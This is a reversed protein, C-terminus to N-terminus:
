KIIFTLETLDSTLKAGEEFENVKVIIMNSQDNYLSTMINNKVTLIKPKSVNFYELNVSLENDSLKMEQFKGALKKKNAIIIIKENLYNELAEEASSNKENFGTLLLDNGGSKFDLLFDDFPMRVFVKLSNMEPIFDISTISVHVPHFLFWLSFFLTKFM